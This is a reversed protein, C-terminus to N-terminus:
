HAKKKFFSNDLSQSLSESATLLTIVLIAASLFFSTDNKHSFRRIEFTIQSHKSKRVIKFTLM